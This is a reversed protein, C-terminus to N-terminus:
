AMRKSCMQQFVARINVINLLNQSMRVNRGCHTVCLENFILKIIIINFEVGTCLKHPLKIQCFVVNVIEEATVAVFVSSVALVISCFM